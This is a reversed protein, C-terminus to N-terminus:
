PNFIVSCRRLCLPHLMLHQQIASGASIRHNLNKKTMGTHNLQVYKTYREISSLELFMYSPLSSVFINHSVYKIVSELLYFEVEFGATMVQFIYIRTLDIVNEVRQQALYYVYWVSNM